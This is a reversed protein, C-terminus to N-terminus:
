TLGAHFLIKEVAPVGGDLYAAGAIAEFCEAMVRGSTWIHLSEEGKGWNVHQFLEIREAARRLVTMNVIDSKAVSLEGKDYIGSKILSDLIILDIVADGLTAYADMHYDDPLGNELSYARRTLARDLLDPNQFKYGTKEELGAASEFLKKTINDYKEERM